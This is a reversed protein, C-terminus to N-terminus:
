NQYIERANIVEEGCRVCIVRVGPQSVLASAPPTLIVEHVSFLEDDPMVQYAQLQAFYHRPEDLAYDLARLRVDLRPALRLSPGNLVDTFTAAIKGFDVLCGDTEVIVLLRKDAPPGDFGLSKLALLGLRVGLVQRPCLHGHRASSQSLYTSIEAIM